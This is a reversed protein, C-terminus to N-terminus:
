YGNNMIGWGSAIARKGALDESESHMSPLRIAQVSDLIYVFNFIKSIYNKEM